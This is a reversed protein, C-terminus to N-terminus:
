GFTVSGPKGDFMLITDDKLAFIQEGDWLVDKPPFNFISKKDVKHAALLQKDKNIGTLAPPCTPPSYYKRVLVVLLSLLDSM